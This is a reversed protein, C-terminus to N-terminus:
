KNLQHYIEYICELIGQGLDHTYDVNYKRAVNPKFNYPTMKYHEAQKKKTYKIELENNMMENIKKTEHNTISPGLMKIQNNMNNANTM